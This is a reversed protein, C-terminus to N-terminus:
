PLTDSIAEEGHRVRLHLAAIRDMIAGYDGATLRKDVHRNGRVQAAIDSFTEAAVQDLSRGAFLPETFKPDLTRFFWRLFALMTPSFDSQKTTSKKAM